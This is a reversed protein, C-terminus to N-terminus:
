QKAIEDPGRLQAFPREPEFIRSSNGAALGFDLVGSTQSALFRLRV